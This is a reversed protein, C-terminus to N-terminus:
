IVLLMTNTNFNSTKATRASMLLFFKKKKQLINRCISHELHFIKKRSHFRKPYVILIGNKNLQCVPMNSDYLYIMNPFVALDKYNKTM